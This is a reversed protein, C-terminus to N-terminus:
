TLTVFIYRNKFDLTKRTSLIPAYIADDKLSPNHTTMAGRGLPRPFRHKM